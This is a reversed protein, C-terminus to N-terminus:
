ALDEPTVDDFGATSRILAEAAANSIHETNELFAELEFGTVAMLLKGEPVPLELILHEDSGPAPKLTIFGDTVDDTLGETTKLMEVAHRLLGRPLRWSGSAAEIEIVFPREPAYVAQYTQVQQAGDEGLVVAQSTMLGRMRYANRKRLKEFHANRAATVGRRVLPTAASVVGHAVLAALVLRARKDM